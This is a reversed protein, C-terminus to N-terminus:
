FFEEEKNLLFTQVIDLRQQCAIIANKRSCLILSCCLLSSLIVQLEESCKTTVPPPLFCSLPDDKQLDASAAAAEEVQAVEPEMGTFDMAMSTESKSQEPMDLPQSSESQTGPMVVYATRKPTKGEINGVNILYALSCIILHM